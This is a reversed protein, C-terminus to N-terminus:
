EDEEPEYICKGSTMCGSDTESAYSEQYFYCGKCGNSKHQDRLSANVNNLGIVM